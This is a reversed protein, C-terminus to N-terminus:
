SQINMPLVSASASVGIRQGGSTFVSEDSFIRISPFISPLLLLLHCLLLHSDADGVGRVRTQVLEPLQHHVPFGRMGCDIPDCLIPCSQTVSSFQVDPLSSHLGYLMPWLYYPTTPPLTFLRYPLLATIVVVTSTM